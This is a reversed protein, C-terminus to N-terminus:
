RIQLALHQRASIIRSRRGELIRLRTASDTKDFMAFRVDFADDDWSSAGSSALEDALQATGADTLCYAIRSRRNTSPDPGQDDVAILGETVM